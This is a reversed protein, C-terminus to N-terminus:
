ERQAADLLDGDRRAPLRGAPQAPTLAVRALTWRAAAHARRGSPNCLTAKEMGPVGESFVVAHEVDFESALAASLESQTLPVHTTTM